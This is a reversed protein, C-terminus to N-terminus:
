FQAWNSVLGILFSGVQFHAMHVMPGHNPSISLYICLYVSVYIYIYTYISLSLSLYIPLSLYM